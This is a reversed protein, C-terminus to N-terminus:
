RGGKHFINRDDFAVTIEELTSFNARFTDGAEIPFPAIASGTLILDKAQLPEGVADLRKALWLLSSLPGDLIDSFNGAVVPCGNKYVEVREAKLAAAARNQKKENVVCAGFAANDAIIEFASRGERTRFDVIEFSAAVCDVANAVRQLDIKGGPIGEKLTVAIETELMPQSFDDMHLTTGDAFVYEHFVRGFDPEHIGLEAWKSRITFGIKRGAPHLGARLHEGVVKKQVAYAEEASLEIPFAVQTKQRHAAYLSRATDKIKEANM